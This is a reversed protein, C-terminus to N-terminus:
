EIIAYLFLGDFEDGIPVEHWKGEAFVCFWEDNQVFHLIGGFFQRPMYEESPDHSIESVSLIVSSGRDASRAM